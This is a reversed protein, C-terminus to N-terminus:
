KSLRRLIGVARNLILIMIESKKEFVDSWDMTKTSINSKTDM